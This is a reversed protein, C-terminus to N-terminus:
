PPANNLRRQHPLGILLSLVPPLSYHRRASPASCRPVHFTASAQPRARQVVLRWGGFGRRCKGGRVGGGKGREGDGAAM